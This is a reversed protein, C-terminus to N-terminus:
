VITVKIEPETLDLIAMWGPRTNNSLGVFTTTNVQSQYSYHYHGHFWLRPSYQELVAELAMRNSRAGPFINDNELYKREAEELTQTSLQLARQFGSEAVDHTLAVDVHPHRLAKHLDIYRIEEEQFWDYGLGTPTRDISYAGGLGLIATDHPGRRLLTGRQIYNFIGLPTNPMPLLMPDVDHADEVSFFLGLRTMLEFHEHNGDIWNLVLNRKTLEDVIHNIYKKWSKAYNFFGFDGLAYLEQCDFHAATDVAWELSYLDRHIDGCLAIRKVDKPTAIKM